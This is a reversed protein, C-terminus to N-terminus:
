QNATLRAGRPLNTRAGPQRRNAETVPLVASVPAGDTHHYTPIPARRRPSRPSGQLWSPGVNKSTRARLTARYYYLVDGDSRTRTWGWSPHENQNPPKM